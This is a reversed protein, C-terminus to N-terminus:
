LFQIYNLLLIHLLLLNSARDFTIVQAQFEDGLTTKISLICGVAFDEGEMAAQHRNRVKQHLLLKQLLYGSSLSFLPLLFFPFLEQLVNQNFDHTCRATNSLQVQVHFTPRDVIFPSHTFSGPHGTGFGNIM